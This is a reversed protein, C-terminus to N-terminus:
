IIGAKEISSSKDDFHYPQYKLEYKNTTRKKKALTIKSALPILLDFKIDIYHRWPIIWITDNPAESGAM